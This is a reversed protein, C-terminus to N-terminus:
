ETERESVYVCESMSERENEYVWLASTCPVRVHAMFPGNM